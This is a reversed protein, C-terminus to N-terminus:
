SFWTNTLFMDFDFRPHALSTYHPIAPNEYGILPHHFFFHRSNANPEYSENPLYIYTQSQAFPNILFVRDFHGSM